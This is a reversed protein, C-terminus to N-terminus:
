GPRHACAGEGDAGLASCRPCGRCRAPSRDGAAWRRPLDPECLLPRSLAFLDAVGFLLLEELLGPSRLGGVLILPCSVRSRFATALDSFYAEGRGPEVPRVPGLEGSGATGGSVEIAAVGRASLWGAVQAAEGVELGGDVFDSGNLKVLVPFDHGAAWQVATLVEQLFRFRGALDGGYRDQRQNAAPSLFQSVLFGHAAHLQVADFGAERARRAAAAFAKIIRTIEERYLERPTDPYQRLFAMSPAVPIRNGIWESRTQGGAHVLQLAARAGGRRITEALRRLGPLADDDAAGLMPPRGRGDPSVFANETVVLGAGGAGLEEYRTLLADTVAGEAGALGLRTASRVLRNPLELSGVTLPDFIGHM